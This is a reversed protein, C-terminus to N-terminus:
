PQPYAAKRVQECSIPMNTPGFRMVSVIPGRSRSNDARQSSQGPTQGAALVRYEPMSLDIFNAEDDDCREERGAPRRMADFWDFSGPEVLCGNARSNVYQAVASGKGTACDDGFRVSVGVRARIGLLVRDARRVGNIITAITASLPASRYRYGNNTCSSGKAPARGEKELQVMVGPKGDNDDDPFCSRGPEGQCRLEQTQQPTPWLAEPNELRIGFLYTTPGISLVCGQTGCEYHGSLDPKPLKPSEWITDPFLPLYSECLTTSYFPPLTIGCVRGDAQVAKSNQDVGQINALLYIQIPGRGDDTLAALASDRGEWATDVTIRVGYSGTPDCSSPPPESGCPQPKQGPAHRCGLRQASNNSGCTGDDACCGPEPMGGDAAPLAPCREDIIGLQDRQWCGEGFNSSHLASLKVGCRGVGRAAHTEVDAQTTCCAEAPAQMLPCPVNQCSLAAPKLPPEMPKTRPGGADDEVPVRGGADPTDTMIPEDGGADESLSADPPTNMDPPASSEADPMGTETDTTANQKTVIPSRDFSCAGWAIPCLLLGLLSISKM